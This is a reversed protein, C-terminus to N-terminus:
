KWHRGERGASQSQGGGGGLDLHRGGLLGQQDAARVHAEAAGHEADGGGGDAPPVPVSQHGVLRPQLVSPLRLEVGHELVPSVRMLYTIHVQNYSISKEGESEKGKSEEVKRRQLLM